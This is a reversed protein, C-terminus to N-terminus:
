SGLSLESIQRPSIAFVKTLLKHIYRNDPDMRLLHIWHVVPGSIDRHLYRHLGIAVFLLASAELLKWAGILVLAISTSKKPKLKTRVPKPLRKNHHGQPVM